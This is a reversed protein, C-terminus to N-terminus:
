FIGTHSIYDVKCHSNCMARLAYDDIFHRASVLEDQERRWMQLGSFRIPLSRNILSWGVPFHVSFLLHQVKSHIKVPKSCDLLENCHVNDLYKSVAMFTSVTCYLTKCGGTGNSLMKTAFSRLINVILPPCSCHRCSWSNRFCLNLLLCIHM